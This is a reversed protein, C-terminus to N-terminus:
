DVALVKLEGVLKSNDMQQTYAKSKSCVLGVESCLHLSNSGLGSNLAKLVLESRLRATRVPRLGM